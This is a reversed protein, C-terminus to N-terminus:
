CQWLMKKFASDAGKTRSGARRAAQGSPLTARAAFLRAPFQVWWLRMLHVCRRPGERNFHPKVESGDSGRILGQAPRFEQGGPAAKIEPPAM